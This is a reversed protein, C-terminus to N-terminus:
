YYVSNIWIKEILQLYDVTSATGPYNMFTATSNNHAMGIVHGVEHLVLQYGINDHRYLASSDYQDDLYYDNFYIIASDPRKNTKNCNGNVTMQTGLLSACPTTGYFPQAAAHDTSMAYANNELAIKGEGNPGAGADINTSTYETAVAPLFASYNEYWSPGCSMTGPDWAMCNDHMASPDFYAKKGWWYYGSEPIQSFSLAPWLSVAILLMGLIRRMNWAGYNNIIDQLRSPNGNLGLGAGFGIGALFKRRV